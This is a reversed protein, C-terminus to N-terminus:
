GIVYTERTERGTNVEGELSLYMWDKSVYRVTTGAHFVKTDNRCDVWLVVGCQVHKPCPGKLGCVYTREDGSNYLAGESCCEIADCRAYILV